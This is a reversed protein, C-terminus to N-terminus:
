ADVELLLVSVNDKGGHFLALEILHDVAAAPEYGRLTDAIEADEVMDTLGDSCLLWKAGEMKPLEM